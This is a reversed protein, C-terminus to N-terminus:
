WTAVMYCQASVGDDIHVFRDIRAREHLMGDTIRSATNVLVPATRVDPDLPMPVSMSSSQAPRHAFTIGSVTTYLRFRDLLGTLLIMQERAEDMDTLLEDDFGALEAQPLLRQIAGALDAPSRASVLSATGDPSRQPESM